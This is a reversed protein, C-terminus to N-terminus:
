KLLVQHFRVMLLSLIKNTWFHFLLAKNQKSGQLAPNNLTLFKVGFM